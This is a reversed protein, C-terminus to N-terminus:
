LTHGLVVEIRSQLDKVYPDDCTKWHDSLEELLRTLDDIKNKRQNAINTIASLEGATTNSLYRAEEVELDKSM